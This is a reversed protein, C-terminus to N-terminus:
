VGRVEVPVGNTEYSAMLDVAAAEPIFGVIRRSGNRTEWVQFGPGPWLPEGARVPVMQQDVRSFVVSDVGASSADTSM